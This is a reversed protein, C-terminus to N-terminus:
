FDFSLGGQVYANEYAFASGTASVFKFELNLWLNGIGYESDLTLATERDLASVNLLAGGAGYFGFGMTANPTSKDERKELLGVVTGGGAVYPVVTQRDKFEFRYVGGVYLPVTLFTFSEFSEISPPPVQILRGKGQAYQVAVGVQWGLRGFNKAFYQEYDYGVTIGNTDGYLDKFNFVEGNIDISIDPQNAQGVRIHSSQNKLAKKQDYIYAGEEDIRVLGDSQDLTVTTSTPGVANAFPSFISALIVVLFFNRLFITTPFSFSPKM